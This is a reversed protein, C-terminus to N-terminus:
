LDAELVRVGHLGQISPRQEHAHDGCRASPEHGWSKRLLLRHDCGCGGRRGGKGVIIDDLARTVEGGRREVARQRLKGVADAGQVVVGPAVDTEAGVLRQETLGVRTELEFEKMKSMEILARHDDVHQAVPNGRRNRVRGIEEVVAVVLDRATQRDVGAKGSEAQTKREVRGAQHVLHDRKEARAVVAKQSAALAIAQRRAPEADARARMDVLLKGEEALEPDLRGVRRRGADGNVRQEVAFQRGAGEAEFDDGDTSVLTSTVAVRKARRVMALRSM